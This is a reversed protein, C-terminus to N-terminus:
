KVNNLIKELVNRTYLYNYKTQTTTKEKSINDFKM